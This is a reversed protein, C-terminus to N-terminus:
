AKLYKIILALIIPVIIINMFILAGMIINKAKELATVRGNTKVTQALIQGHVERESTQNALIVASMADLKAELVANSPAEDM